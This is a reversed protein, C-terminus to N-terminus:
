TWEDSSPYQLMGVHTVFAVSWLIDQHLAWLQKMTDITGVYGLQQAVPPVPPRASIFQAGGQYLITSALLLPDISREKALKEGRDANGALGLGVIAFTALRENKVGAIWSEVRDPCQPFMGASLGVLNGIAQAQKPEPAKDFEEIM